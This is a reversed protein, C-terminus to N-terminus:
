FVPCFMGKRRAPPNTYTLSLEFAGRGGSIASLASVNTDFSLGLM